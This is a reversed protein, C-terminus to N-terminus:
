RRAGLGKVIGSPLSLSAPPLSEFCSILVTELLLMLAISCRELM